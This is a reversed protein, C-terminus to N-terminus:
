DHGPAYLLEQVFERVMYGPQHSSTKRFRNRNCRGKEAYVTSLCFGVRKNFDENFTRKLSLVLFAPAILSIIVLQSMKLVTM